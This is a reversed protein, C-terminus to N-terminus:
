SHQEAVIEQEGKPGTSLRHAESEQLGTAKHSEKALSIHCFHTTVKLGLTGSVVIERQRQQSWRYHGLYHCSQWDPDQLLILM